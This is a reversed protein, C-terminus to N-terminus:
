RQLFIIEPVGEASINAQILMGTNDGVNEWTHLFGNPELQVNGRARPEVRNEALHIKWTGAAVYYLAAGSRQHMPPPPGGRDVSVRILTFEYPGPRLNPLPERSRHLEEVTAPAAYWAKDVQGTRALAFQLLVAGGGYNHSRLM